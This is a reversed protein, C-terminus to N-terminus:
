ESTLQEGKEFTLGNDLEINEKIVYFSNDNISSLDVQVTRVIDIERVCEKGSLFKSDMENLMVNKEYKKKTVPNEIVTDTQPDLVDKSLM